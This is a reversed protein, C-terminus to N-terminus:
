KGKSSKYAMNAAAKIDELIWSYHTCCDTMPLACVTPLSLDMVLMLDDGSVYVYDVDAVVGDDCYRPARGFDSLSLLYVGCDKFIQAIGSKQSEIKQAKEISLKLEKNKKAPDVIQQLFCLLESLVVDSEDLIHKEDLLLEPNQADYVNVSVYFMHMSHEYLYIEGIQGDVEKSFFSYKCAPRAGVPFHLPMAETSYDEPRPLLRSVISFIAGYGESRDRDLMERVRRNLQPIDANAMCRQSVFGAAGKVAMNIFGQLYRGDDCSEAKAWFKSEDEEALAKVEPVSQEVLTTERLASLLKSVFQEMDVNDDEASWLEQAYDYGIQYFRNGVDATIRLLWEVEEWSTSNDENDQDDDDEFLDDFSLGEDDEDDCEYYEASLPSDCAEMIEYNYEPAVLQGYQEGSCVYINGLFPVISYDDYIPEILTGDSFFFGFKDDRRVIVFSHDDWSEQQSGDVPENYIADMTCPVVLNGNFDTIGYANDQMVINYPYIQESKKMNKQHKTTINKAFTARIYAFASICLYLIKKSIKDPKALNFWLLPAFFWFFQNSKYCSYVLSM